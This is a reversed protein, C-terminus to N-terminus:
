FVTPILVLFTHPIALNHNLDAVCPIVVTLWCEKMWCEKLLRMTGVMYYM